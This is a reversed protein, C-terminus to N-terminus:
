KPNKKTWPTPHLIDETAQPGWWWENQTYWDVTRKLAENFDFRPKWAIDQAIKSSDLSYRKDHGPRDDVYTILSPPKDLLQLIKGVIRNNSLENGASINYIEGPKGKALVKNIAEIHDEVYIWDRINEGTGYIPIPKNQLARIITKPILKEPMQYPGYNNTCRTIEINLRYTHYYAIALMDGAAKSAAYPNSPKLIDTEKFSGGIIEGYVEDTSIHIYKAKDNHRRLAELLTFPGLINSHIFPAPDLISRDVHTEAAINIIADVEKVAKNVLQCNCIDGQIFTYTPKDEIDKLSTRNSGVGMKDINVLQHEPHKRITTRCLNAGIFGLGGTVLIKM